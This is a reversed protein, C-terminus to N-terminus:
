VGGPGATLMSGPRMEIEDGHVAFRGSRQYITTLRSPLVIAHVWTPDPWRHQQNM